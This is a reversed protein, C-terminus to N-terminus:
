SAERRSTWRLLDLIVIATRAAHPLDRHNAGTGGRGSYLAFGLRRMGALLTRFNRTPAGPTGRAARQRWVAYRRSWRRSGGAGAPHLAM